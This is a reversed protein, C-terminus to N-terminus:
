PRREIRYFEHPSESAFRRFTVTHPTKGPWAGFQDTWTKLDTSWWIRYQVNPETEFTLEYEGQDNEVLGVLKGEPQIAVPRAMGTVRVSGGPHDGPVSVLVLCAGELDYGRADTLIELFRSAEPPALAGAMFEFILEDGDEATRRQVLEPGVSGSGPVAYSVDTTRGAFGECIVRDMTAGVASVLSHVRPAFILTGLNGSKVVRNGLVGSLLVTGERDQIEFPIAGDHVVVGGLDPNNSVPVPKVDGPAIPEAQVVGMQALLLGM